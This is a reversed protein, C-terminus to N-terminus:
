NALFFEVLVAKGRLDSLRIPRGDVARLVLDNPVPSAIRRIRMTSFSDKSEVAAELSGSPMALLGAFCVMTGFWPFCRVAM